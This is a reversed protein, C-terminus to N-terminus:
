LSDEAEAGKKAKPSAGKKKSEKKPAAKKAPKKETSESKAEKPEKPEKAKAAKAPKPAAKKAGRRKKGGGKAARAELLALADPLTLVEHDSGEPLSANVDGDTVYLGYRGSKIVVAAKTDPHEGLTKITKPQSSTRGGRTKPRSFLEKAQEITLTTPSFEELPITRNDTGCKIYPGYRGNLVIVDEGNEELKGITKPFKLLEKAVEFTVDEPKMGPLLSCMKPKEGGEVMDGQQIYPGFRGKKLYVPLGDHTGLAQPGKRAEELVKLAVELNLEDPAISDPVSARDEGNSIFPGFRGIRVEVTRGEADSGLPLGNVARPDINKEGNEVLKQLGPHGNGFYFKRLYSINEAEGRAIADLDDELKATFEYDMLVKFNNEMLATLAQALFTPVLATGKKFAYDRSLVVDVITAWTSPRGIGLRELEKILSGETYRPPPQTFHELAELSKTDLAEGQALKPLIREQEALEADPDDYGEVYARLFGPFDITKGSARFRADEVEIQVVVRTGAADKMQCALMRKWILDYLKFAETGLRSRVAEPHAFDEGAPRIAEHAEQANKVKTKYIRPEPYVFESGFESAILKRSGTLAEESLNTSDTRMYTIFGNEYLMQAVQMTRRAAFGLKRSAEQQLTSTTFPPSPKTTYPKTEIQLVKPTAKLLKEKLKVAADGILHIVDDNNKLKGSNPDFDKGLAVRKQGVHTLEAEFQDSPLDSGSKSFQAKLDWFTASVFRIREREREVLLRMAVSQVRGASLRPGVKKWLLPSVSYGYLRDIIRRTEQARVLNEDIDRPSQIAEAIAAKTIEHFVLRKVPVKPKLVDLLHWSISEGERDEDTALLLEDANKLAKQIEKVRKEKESPIIYLPTFNDDVNVGLRSWKEKKIEPPIEAANNPLDRVHGYSAMVEFDKGLFKEITRAKTPSEVIVLKKGM